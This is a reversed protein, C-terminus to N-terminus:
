AWVGPASPQFPLPGKFFSPEPHRFLRPPHLHPWPLAGKFLRIYCPVLLGLSELAFFFPLGQGAKEGGHERCEVSRFFHQVVSLGIPSFQVALIGVAKAEDNDKSRGSGPM